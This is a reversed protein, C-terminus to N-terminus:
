QNDSTEVAEILNLCDETSVECMMVLNGAVLYGGYIRRSTFGSGDHVTRDIAEEASAVGAEM